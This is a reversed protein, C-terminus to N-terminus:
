PAPAELTKLQERYTDALGPKSWNDYLGILGRIANLAYPHREGLTSKLDGQARLLQEEAEDYREVQALTSGYQIRFVATYWSEAPLSREAKSVLEESLPLAEDNREMRRLLGTVNYLAILTDLHDEGSVVRYGALAEQYHSLAEVHKGQQNLVVALDNVSALTDPHDEGLIRRQAKLTERFIPEAEEFRKLSMLLGGYNNMSVLTDKHDDGLIRRRNELAERFLPEAEVLRGQEQLVLALNNLSVLTDPDDPPLVRRRWELTQRFLPEAAKPNGQDQYLNALNNMARLTSRHDQGFEETSMEVALTLQKEAKEYLGLSRYTGGITNRLEAEIDPRDAFDKQVRAVAQDLIDVVKVDRGEITPDASSFMRTMFGNIANAREVAREAKVREAQAEAFRNEALEEAALARDRQVAFREARTTEVIAIGVILILLLGALVVPGRHRMLLKRLQYATSQPRALIPENKLYREVDDALAAASPYRRNPDKDLAKRAITALDIDVHSPLDDPDQECVMRVAQHVAVRRLDYPPRDALLEYLIVGLAYVDSRVDVNQADGRAQEPSMYSITGKIHDADTTITPDREQDDNIRALGFDLVKIEPGGQATAQSRKTVDVASSRLEEPTCILINTPKLDRHIVGRQHAYSVADCLSRFIHLRDVRAIAPTGNRAQVHRTLSKGAVYEMAFYPQGDRTTGADYIAAIGPHKLRALVRIERDFLRRHYDDLAHMERVIKLAVRRNTRTHLAEYVIGMGGRGIERIIRYGAIWGSEDSPSSRSGQPIVKEFVQGVSASSDEEAVLLSELRASDERWFAKLADDVRDPLDDPVHAETTATM